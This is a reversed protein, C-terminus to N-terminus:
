RPKARPDRVDADFFGTEVHENRKVQVFIRYRGATPFLYPLAVTAPTGMHAMHGMHGAHPDPAAAPTLVNAARATPANASAQALALAAMSVSGIPHVHAFVQGDERVIAAHGRMGMYPQLDPAT